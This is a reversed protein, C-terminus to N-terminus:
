AVEGVIRVETNLRIGFHQEVTQQVEGILAELDAATYIPKVAIGEPTEWVLDAPDAGKLDKSAADAWATPFQESSTM